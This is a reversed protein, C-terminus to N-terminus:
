TLTCDYVSMQSTTNSIFPAEGRIAQLLVCYPTGLVRAATLTVNGEPKMRIMDDSGNDDIVM